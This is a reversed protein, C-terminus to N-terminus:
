TAPPCVSFFITGGIVKEDMLQGSNGPSAKANPAGCAVMAMIGGKQGEVVVM